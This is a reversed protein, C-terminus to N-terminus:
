SVIYCMGKENMTFSFPININLINFRPWSNYFLTRKLIHLKIRKSLFTNVKYQLADTVTIKFHVEAWTAYAREFTYSKLFLLASIWLPNASKNQAYAHIDMRKADNM